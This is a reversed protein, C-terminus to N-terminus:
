LISIKKVLLSRLEEEYKPINLFFAFNAKLLAKTGKEFWGYSPSPITNLIFAM